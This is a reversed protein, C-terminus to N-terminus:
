KKFIYIIHVNKHEIIMQVVRSRKQMMLDLNLTHMRNTKEFGHVFKFNKLIARQIHRFQYAIATIAM